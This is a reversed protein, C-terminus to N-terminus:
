DDTFSLDSRHTNSPRLERINEMVRVSQMAAQVDHVRVISAGHMLAITEAAITAALRGAPPPVEEGPETIAHGLFSKRSVGVLIPRELECLANLEKLLRFNEAVSKGFGFGPDIIINEISHRQALAISNALFSRVRAIIDDEGSRTATSWQMAKPTVPTHMLVVAAQYKRCILPLEPDFTFGSIDNVMDAGAKLAEEAVEAKYTDISILLDCKKRLRAILPATREIEETASIKEAGPRSSEGGIDIISAGDRAMALALEVARDLDIAGADGLLTGGDYFSDPTTNLIGMIKAGKNLDLMRDACNIQKHTEMKQISSM